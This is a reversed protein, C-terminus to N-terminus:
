RIKLLVRTLQGILLDSENGVLDNPFAWGIGTTAGTANRTISSLSTANLYAVSQLLQNSAYSPDAIVTGDLKVTEVKGDPDYTFAQVSAPGSPPTTSVSLVRGTKAEYTPVTVTGWM